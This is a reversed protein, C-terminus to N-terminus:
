HEENAQFIVHQWTVTSMLFILNSLFASDEVDAKRPRASCCVQGTRRLPWVSIAPNPALSGRTEEIVNWVFAKARKWGWCQKSDYDM